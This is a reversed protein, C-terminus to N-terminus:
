SLKVRADVAVVGNDFALIPNLDLEALEPLDVALQSVRRLVNKLAAVNIPPQGRMGQLMKKARIGSIMDGADADGLPAIRFTV